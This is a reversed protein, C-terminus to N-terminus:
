SNTTLAGSVSHCYGATPRCTGYFSWPPVPEFGSYSALSGTEQHRNHRLDVPAGVEDSLSPRRLAFMLAVLVALNEPM